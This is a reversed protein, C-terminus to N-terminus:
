EFTKNARMLMTQPIQVGREKAIGLHIHLEYVDASEVPLDEPKAGRLIRGVLRASMRFAERHSAAYASMSWRNEVAPLYYNIDPVRALHVAKITEALHQNVTKNAIHLIGDVREKRIIGPLQEIDTKTQVSHEVLTLGLRGAAGRLDSLRLMPTSDYEPDPMVMVRRLGPIFEKLIELRKGNLLVENIAVGTMNGGPKAWGKVLGFRVPDSSVGFVVPVNRIETSVAIAVNATSTWILHPQVRILEKAADPLGGLGEVQRVDFHLDRDNFGQAKLDERLWDVLHVVRPNAERVEWLVGIKWPAAHPQAEAGRPVLCMVALVVAFGIRRM